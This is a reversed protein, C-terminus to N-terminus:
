IILTQFIKGQTNDANGEKAMLMWGTAPLPYYFFFLINKGANITFVAYHM